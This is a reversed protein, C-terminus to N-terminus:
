SRRSGTNLANREAMTLDRWAGAPLDDLRLTGIAVRVLRLTPLGVAATMRRVQRNRGETLMIELWSVPINRRYRIPPDRPPLAPEAMVTAQAPRTQYDQIRLGRRLLELAAEGVTGEVQVWYTRPHNLRQQLAGDSSLLLLGESDFDLRGLPYVDPVPIYDALTRRPGRKGPTSGQTFQCLVQFPKNFLLYRLPL